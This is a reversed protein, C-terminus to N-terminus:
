ICWMPPAYDAIDPGVDVFPQAIKARRLRTLGTRWASLRRLSCRPFDLSCTPIQFLKQPRPALLTVGARRSVTGSRAVRQPHATLVTRSSITVRAPNGFGM